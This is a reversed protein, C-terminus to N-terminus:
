SFGRRIWGIGVLINSCPVRSFPNSLFISRFDAKDNYYLPFYKDLTKKNKSFM